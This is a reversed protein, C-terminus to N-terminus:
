CFAKSRKKREESTQSQAYIIHPKKKKEDKWLVWIIKTRLAASIDKRLDTHKMGSTGKEEKKVMLLYETVNAEDM